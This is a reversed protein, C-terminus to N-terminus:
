RVELRGRSRRSEALRVTDGAKVRVRFEGHASASRWEIRHQGSKIRKLTLPAFGAARGNITIKMWSQSTVHIQATAQPEPRPDEAFVPATLALAAALAGAWRFFSRGRVIFRSEPLDEPVILQTGITKQAALIGSVLVGIEVRAAPNEKALKMERSHGRNEPHITPSTKPPLRRYGDLMHESMVQLAFLDTEYSFDAGLLLEPAVFAPTAQLHGDSTRGSAFDILRAVGDRDIM